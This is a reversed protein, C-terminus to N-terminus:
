DEDDVDVVDNVNGVINGDEDLFNGEDDVGVVVPDEEDTDTDEEFDTAGIDTEDGLDIMIPLQFNQPAQNNNMVNGMNNGVPPAGMLPHNVNGVPDEENDSM